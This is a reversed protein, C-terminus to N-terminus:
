FGDSRCLRYLRVVDPNAAGYRARYSARNACLTRQQRTPRRVNGRERRQAQRVLRGTVRADNLAGNYDPTSLEQAIAPAAILAIAIGLSLRTKM